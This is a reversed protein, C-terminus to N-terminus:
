PAITKAVTAEADHADVKVGPRLRYQGRVVVREGSKLGRTVVTEEDDSPGTSIPRNEAVNDPAIVWAFLGLSSRQVVAPPVTAVNNLTDVLVRVRVFEGPWLREDENPFSAKLRITSTAQDIQNDILLLAGTALQRTNDQDFALVPVSGKLMAERVPGLDRQPLTFVAMAPKIQTLVTIPTQDAAHVINGADVQRFGVNGDIPAVITAYSLQTEASEIAAQDAEITAKLNDVKAQQQDVAQQTGAGKVVLIKFRDLDKQDSLLQAEDEVRKAKAQDVVEQYPRPDVVALVDGKRVHQGEVFNVSQLKGDVQTRIAVANAAQVTGLGDLYVPVDRTSVETVTVPVPAAPPKAGGPVNGEPSLRGYVLTSGIILAGIGVAWVAASGTPTKHRKREESADGASVGELAESPATHLDQDIVLWEPASSLHRSARGRPM